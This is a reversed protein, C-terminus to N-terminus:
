SCSSKESQSINSALEEAYRCLLLLCPPWAGRSFKAPTIILCFKFRYPHVAGMTSTYIIHSPTAKRLLLAKMGIITQFQV